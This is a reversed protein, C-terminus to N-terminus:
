GTMLAGFTRSTEPDSMENERISPLQVFTDDLADELPLKAANRRM